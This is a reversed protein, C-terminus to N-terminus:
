QVTSQHPETQKTQKMRRLLLTVTGNFYYEGEDSTTLIGKTPTETKGEAPQTNVDPDNHIRAKDSSFSVTTPLTDSKESPVSEAMEYHNRPKHSRKMEDVALSSISQNFPAKNFRHLYLINM